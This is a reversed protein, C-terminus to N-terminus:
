ARGGLIEVSVATIEAYQRGDAHATVTARGISHRGLILSMEAVPNIALVQGSRLPLLSAVQRVDAALEVRLRMPLALVELALAAIPRPVPPLARPPMLLLVHGEIVGGAHTCTVDLDFHPQRCTAPWEAASAADLAAAIAAAHRAIALGTATGPRIPDGGLRLTALLAALDPAVQPMPGGDARVLPRGARVTVALGFLASLGRAAAALLPGFDADDDGPDVGRAAPPLFPQAWDDDAPVDSRIRLDSM